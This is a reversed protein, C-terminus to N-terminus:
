RDGWDRRDDYRSYRRDDYRGRDHYARENRRDYRPDYYEVKCKGHKNCKTRRTDYRDREHGYGYSARYDRHPAQRYYVPRGYRDRGVVLREDYGNNGHRYHPQNGRMLVDAVDVIVRAIEDGSQAHATAPTFAAAGLGTALLAPALWRTMSGM